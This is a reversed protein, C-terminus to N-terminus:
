FCKGVIANIIFIWNAAIEPLTLTKGWVMGIIRKMKEIFFRRFPSLHYCIVAGM